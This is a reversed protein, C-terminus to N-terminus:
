DRHLHFAQRQGVLTDQARVDPVHYIINEWGLYPPLTPANPFSSKAWHGRNGM